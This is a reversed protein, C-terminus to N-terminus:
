RQPIFVAGDFGFGRVVADRLCDLGVMNATAFAAFTEIKVTDATTLPV